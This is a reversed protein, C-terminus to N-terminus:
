YRLTLDVSTWRVGAMKHKGSVYESAVSIQSGSTARNNQYDRMAIPVSKSEVYSNRGPPLWARYIRHRNLRPSVV